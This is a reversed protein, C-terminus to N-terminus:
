GHTWRVVKVIGRTDTQNLSKMTASKLGVYQFFAVFDLAGAFGTLSPWIDVHYQDWIWGKTSISRGDNLLNMLASRHSMAAIPIEIALDIDSPMAKDSLFSGAMCLDLGSAVNLLHDQRFRRFESFMQTRVANTAFRSDIEPLTAEHVGSPLFGRGDLAPLM